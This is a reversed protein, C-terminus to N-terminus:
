RACSGASPRRRLALTLECPTSTRTTGRPTSTPRPPRAPPPTLFLVPPHPFLHPYPWRQCPIPPSPRPPLSLPLSPPPSPPRQRPCPLRPQSQTRSPDKRKIQANRDRSQKPESTPLCSVAIDVYFTTSLQYWRKYSLPVSVLPVFCVDISGHTIGSLWASLSAPLTLLHTHM